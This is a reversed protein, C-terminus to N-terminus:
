KYFLVQSCMQYYQIYKNLIEFLLHIQKLIYLGGADLLKVSKKKLLSSVFTKLLATRLYWFM